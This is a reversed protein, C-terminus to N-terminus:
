LRLFRHRLIGITRQHFFSVSPYEPSRRTPVPGLTEYIKNLVEEAIRSFEAPGAGAGPELVMSVINGKIAKLNSSRCSLGSLDPPPM